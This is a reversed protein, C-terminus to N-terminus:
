LGSADRTVWVVTDFCQLFKYKDEATFCFQINLYTNYQVSLLDFFFTRVMVGRRESLDLNVNEGSIILIKGWFNIPTKKQKQTGKSRKLQSVAGADAPPHAIGTKLRQFTGGGISWVGNARKYRNCTGAPRRCNFARRGVILSVNVFSSSLEESFM